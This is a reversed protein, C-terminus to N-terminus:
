IKIGLKFKIVEFSLDKKYKKYCHQCIGKSFDIKNPNSEDVWDNFIQGCLFRSKSRTGHLKGIYEIGFNNSHYQYIKM